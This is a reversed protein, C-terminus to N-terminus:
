LVLEPVAPVVCLFRRLFLFCLRLRKIWSPHKEKGLACNLSGIIALGKLSLSAPYESDM